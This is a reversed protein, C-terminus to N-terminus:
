ASHVKLDRYIIELSHIYHVALSIRATYFVVRALPYPGNMLDSYMNGAEVYDLVLCSRHCVNHVRRRSSLARLGHRALPHM